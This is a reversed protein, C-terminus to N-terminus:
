KIKLSLDYVLRYSKDALSSLEKCNEVDWKMTVIIKKDILSLQYFPNCNERNATKTKKYFNWDSEPLVRNQLYGQLEDRFVSEYNPFQENLIEKQIKFFRPKSLTPFLSDDWEKRGFYQFEKDEFLKEFNIGMMKAYKQNRLWYKFFEDLSVLPVQELHHGNKISEFTITNQKTKDYLLM